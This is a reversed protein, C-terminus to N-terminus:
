FIDSHEARFPIHMSYTRREYEPIMGFSHSPLTYSGTVPSLPLSNTKQMYCPLQFYSHVAITAIVCELDIPDWVVAFGLMSTSYAIGSSAASSNVTTLKQSVSLFDERLTHDRNHYGWKLPLDCMLFTLTACISRSPNFFPVHLQKLICPLYIQSSKTSLIFIVLCTTHFECLVLLM